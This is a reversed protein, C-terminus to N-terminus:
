LNIPSAKTARGSFIQRNVILDITKRFIDQICGTDNFLKSWGVNKFPIMMM